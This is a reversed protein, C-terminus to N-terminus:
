AARRGHFLGLIAELAAGHTARPLKFVPAKVDEPGYIEAYEAANAFGNRNGCNLYSEVALGEAVIVDHGDLEIHFYSVQAFSTDIVVTADNVFALAEVLHGNFVVAHKQSVLLDRSPTAEGFAGAKIRIPTAESHRTLFRTDYSRRGIWKIPRAVGEATTVLDGIALTEIAREGVPTRIMTGPLFCAITFSTNDFPADPAISDISQDGAGDQSIWNAANNIAALADARGTVGDPFSRTGNYAAVDEDGGGLTQLSVATTGATLGTGTLQGAAVSFGGDSNTIASLFTTPTDFNAGTYAYVTEDAAAFAATGTVTGINVSPTTAINQFQVVQGAAIGGAPATWAFTGEGTNFSTGNWEDDRFRIVEGAPIADIAVFSLGDNGDANFGIFAISGASPWAM